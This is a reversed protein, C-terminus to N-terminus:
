NKIFKVSQVSYGNKCNLIYSGSKFEFIDITLIPNTINNKTLVINGMVDIIEIDTELEPVYFNEITISTQAPNPYVRMYENKVDADSYEYINIGKSKKEQRESREYITKDDEIVIYDFYITEKTRMMRIGNITYEFNSFVNRYPVVFDGDRVYQTYNITKLEDKEFFLTEFSLNEKNITLQMFENHFKIIQEKEYYKVTYKENRLTEIVKNVDFDFFHNYFGYREYMEKNQLTYNSQEEPTEHLKSHILEGDYNYHEIGSFNSITSKIDLVRVS